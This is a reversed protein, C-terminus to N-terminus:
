YINWEACYKEYQNYYDVIRDKYLELLGDFFIKYLRANKNSGRHSFDVNLYSILSDIIADSFSKLRDKKNYFPHNKIRVKSTIFVFSDDLEELSYRRIIEIPLDKYRNNKM